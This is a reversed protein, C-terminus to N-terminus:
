IKMDVLLGRIEDVRQLLDLQNEQQGLVATTLDELKQNVKEITTYVKHRGRRDWTAEDKLAYTKRVAESLFNKIMEKYKKLEKLTQSESLRKGQNEIEKLLNEMKQQLHTGQVKKLEEEFMPKAVATPNKDKDIGIFGDFKKTPINRIKM